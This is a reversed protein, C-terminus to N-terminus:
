TRDMLKNGVYDFLKQDGDSLSGTSALAALIQRAQAWGSHAAVVDFEEWAEAFKATAVALDRQARADAPDAAALQSSISLSRSYLDCADRKQSRRAHLDALKELDVSLDRLYQTNGPNLANIREDIAAARRFMDIASELDDTQAHADGVLALIVSHGRLLETDDSAGVLLQESLDLARHYYPLASELDGEAAYTEGVAQLRTSLDRQYQRNARDYDALQEVIGLAEDHLERAFSFHGCKALLHGAKGLAVAHDRQLETDHPRDAALQQSIALARQLHPLASGLDGRRTSLDALLDLIVGQQRRYLIVNPHDHALREAIGLARNYLEAATAPQGHYSYLKALGTMSNTVEYDDDADKTATALAEDVRLAVTYHEFAHPIDNRTVLTEAVAQTSQSLGRQYQSNDPDAATLRKYAERTAEALDALTALDVRHNARDLLRLAPDALEDAGDSLRDSLAAATAALLAADPLGATVLQQAEDLLYRDLRREAATDALQTRLHQQLVRHLRGFRLDGALTLLRRGELIRRTSTWDDTGSLGPLVAPPQAASEVTLHELWEWPITDPPLLSAFALASKARRPLRRLTQDVISGALKERHRIAAAGETSAGVQDLMTAGHTQLLSLLESPESGSTGLYVAAHEVALTYADLLEVIAAASQAEHPSSFDTRLKAADRPPQHERILAVADEVDLPGVEILATSRRTGPTGFDASGLRTTAAVHFWPQQPLVSVQAESLLAPESVNDLLLLCAGTAEERGRAATTLGILRALVHRGVLRPDARDTESPPLGLEPSSALTAVAELMDTHGEADVQWTGGQYAHANTHAYTAALESKGMGGVGHLVAVVGPAGGSLHDRLARLEHTRGTFAPNHRHLNGPAHQALRAQRLHTYVGRGLARLRRRVEADELAGAGEAFWPQLQELQVRSVEHHWALVPEDYREPPDVDVLYVGTVADAGGIRRAQVRCFEDWEWRCYTSRLYNPSLCILLARSTRLGERLRLEWDHRSHIDRQDFFIRFPESSYKRYDDYVADRLAAIIGDADDRRAYSIFVDYPTSDL